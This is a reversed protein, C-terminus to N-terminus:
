SYGSRTNVRAVAPPRQPQGLQQLPPLRLLSPLQTLLPPAPVPLSASLPAMVPFFAVSPVLLRRGPRVVRLGLPRPQCPLPRYPHLPPPLRHHWPPPQPSLLPFQRRMPQLLTQLLPYRRTPMPIPIPVRARARHLRPFARPRSVDRRAPACRAKRRRCRGADGRRRRVEWADRHRWWM